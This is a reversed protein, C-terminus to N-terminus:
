YKLLAEKYRKAGLGWMSFLLGLVAGSKGVSVYLCLRALGSEQCWDLILTFTGMPVTIAHFYDDLCVSLPHLKHWKPLNVYPCCACLSWLTHIMFYVVHVSVSAKLLLHALFFILLYPLSQNRPTQNM